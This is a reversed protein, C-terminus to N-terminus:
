ARRLGWGLDTEDTLWGNYGVNDLAKDMSLPICLDEDLEICM